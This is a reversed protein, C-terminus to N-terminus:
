RCEFNHTDETDGQGKYQAHKPYPCLPRSRRPFANGTATVSMPATGREVWKVMAGLLDFQDLAQGGGCHGMGPVFYLQSWKSVADFGGNAAAVDKYYEFTDLPSFWPDSDGHYLILKGGHGSFTTLNTSMSDTLPQVDALAEEEIDVEMATTAPGFIDPGPSLIGRIPGSAAIGVDYLFGPYVQVGESTKPGGMVKKVASVKQPALCSDTKGQKCTLEAPDFNCGLPNSIMGDVLGDKDDCKKMLTDIILKRDSDNIAQTIIPKGDSDKPAIQNFAVPIWKGIALNSLGTRMAPDGVIIGDFATPYRQSLVMGERGGTSCGSFYSFAAPKGYYQAIIKKALRAVEANALYAFDLYAQQDKMFAFDFGPHHSKHGTDTSVVAFGRMLAPTDGAANLGLPPMVVGNSGAGGQMLFDGNWGDPMALVFAIGFEEGDIGTRRNIVGEVRCYAPLPASHGPGWPNPETTGAAIAASKTIEVAPAKFNMLGPCSNSQQASACNVAVFAWFMNRLFHSRM